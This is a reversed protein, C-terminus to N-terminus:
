GVGVTVTMDGGDVTLPLDYGIVAGITTDGGTTTTTTTDAGPFTSFPTGGDIAASDAAVEFQYTQWVTTGIWGTLTVTIKSGTDAIKVTAYRGRGVSTGLDYVTSPAAARADLSAVTMTPASGYSPDGFGETLTGTDIALGHYDGSLAVMRGAWGLDRFMELLTTREDTYSGWSEGGGTPTSPWPKPMHWVLFEATSTGLVGSMWALQTAGLMGKGPSAPDTSPSRDSRVDSVLHLVRGVEWSQYIPGGAPVPYHPVRERYAQQAGPKGISTSDSNDGAFDHDDWCYTIPLNRWLRGQRANAGLTNNFTLNRDYAERHTEVGVGAIHVGSGPDLYHADGLHAAFLWEASRDTLTDFVPHNSVRGVVYQPDDVAGTSEVGVGGLGADGVAVFEYTCPVGLPPHTKFTGSWSMDLVGDVEVAYWYRTDATLGAPRFSWMSDPHTGADTTVYVAGTLAANDAVALRAAAGDIKARVWATAPTTAGVWCHVVAM